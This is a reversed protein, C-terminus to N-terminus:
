PVSRGQPGGWDGHMSPRDMKLQRSFVAVEALVPGGTPGITGPVVALLFVGSVGHPSYM